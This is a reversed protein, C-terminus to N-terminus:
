GHPWRTAFGWPSPKGPPYELQRQHVSGILTPVTWLNMEMFGVMPKKMDMALVYGLSSTREDMDMTKNKIGGLMTELIKKMLMMGNPTLIMVVGTTIMRCGSAQTMIRIPSGLFAFM